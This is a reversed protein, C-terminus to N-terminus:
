NFTAVSDADFTVSEKLGMGFRTIEYDNDVGSSRFGVSFTNGYQYPFYVRFLFHDRPEGEITSVTGKPSLGLPEGGLSANPGGSVNTGVQGDFDLTFFPTDSMDKFAEFTIESGPRIYGEFYLSNMAQEKGNNSALNMFHTAYEANVGFKDAGRVDNRGELAKYVNPTDAESFVLEGGRTEFYSANMTWIGEFAEEKQDYVIVINNNELDPNSKAPIYLTNKYEIGHGEGFEYSDLLRKIPRGINVTAPKIDKQAVRGVSTIRNDPTVFYVDDAGNIVRIQSGIGSKLPERIVYDNGEQSYSMAEIYNDKFVYFNDEQPAVDIIDGGGYPVGILDGEGANRNASYSFDLPDKQHSVFVSSGSSYAQDNGNEDKAIASRVRGVIIRSLYNAIRSGRPNESHETVTEIAYSPDTFSVSSSTTELVTSSTIANYEHVTGDVIVEGTEPYKLQKVEFDNQGPDSDLAEFTITDTTTDTIKAVSGSEPGALFHIFLGNFQDDAWDEGTVTVTTTSSGTFDTGSEIYELREDRLTSEVTINGSGDTSQIASVAGNWSFYPDYRNSGVLIDKNQENVLSSAFDFEAGDELGDKLLRWTDDGSPLIEVKDDRARLLYSENGFAKQFEFFGNIAGGDEYNGILETGARPGVGGRDTVQVNQMIRASGFPAKTTDKLAYLGQNFEDFDIYFDSTSIKAM